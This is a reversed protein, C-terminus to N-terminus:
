NSIKKAWGKIEKWNRFDGEPTKVMHKVIFRSFFGLKSYDMKGAFLGVNIPKLEARLPDLYADVAKRNEPTEDKLTMCVIFYSVNKSQLATKNKVVFDKIEPRVQGMRIASGIIITKYSDISKVENVPSVTVFCQKSAIEKGISDAVEATSGALSSYTVLVKENSKNEDGYFLIMKKNDKANCSSIAFFTIVILTHKM